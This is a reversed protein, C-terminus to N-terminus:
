PPIESLPVERPHFWGAVGFVLALGAMALSISAAIEYHAIIAMSWLVLPAISLNAFLACKLWYSFAERDLKGSGASPWLIVLMMPVLFSLSGEAFSGGGGGISLLLAPGLLFFFTGSVILADRPWRRIYLLATLVISFVLWGDFERGLAPYGGFVSSVKHPTPEVTALSRWEWAGEPSRVLIGQNGMAVVLRDEGEETPYLIMDYPGMDIGWRCAGLEEDVREMHDRRGPPLGWAVQWTDGGDLSEEVVEDGTRFCHDPTKPLCLSQVPPRPENLAAWLDDRLTGLQEPCDLNTDCRYFTPADRSIESWSSTWYQVGTYLYGSDVVFRTVFRPQDCSTAVTAVLTLSLVGLQLVKALAHRPPSFPSPHPANRWVRWSLLLVPLAILDSPDRVIQVQWDVLAEWFSVTARNILPTTKMATFWLATGWFAVKGVRDFTWRRLTLLPVMLTALLLPFLYLGAFDSLKGTLWSPYAQKLLHDNLLLVALALWVSPVQFCSLARRWLSGEIPSPADRSLRELHQSNNM